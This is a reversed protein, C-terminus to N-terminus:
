SDEPEENKLKGGPHTRRHTDKVEKPRVKTYAQTTKLLKHGLLEQIHRIDAGQQLMHSACTRRFTHPSVPRNIGAKLRYNRLFARVSEASLPGGSSNLFLRPQGPNTEAHVPRVNELYDKLYRFASKGLPVARDKGGKGRRIRIVMNEFDPDHTELSMLEDVRIGSSYLLETVARNRIGAALSLDAQDLLKAVEGPTLVTGIKRNKVSIQAFAEAPNVLLRQSEALHEFLRKVPRIKLGRSEAAIPESMIKEQYAAIEQRTVKRLDTIGRDKLYQEFQTLWKGYWKVTTDAYGATKLHKKFEKVTETVNM